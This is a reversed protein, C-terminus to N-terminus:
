IKLLDAALGSFIEAFRQRKKAVARTKRIKSVTRPATMEDIPRVDTIESEWETEDFDFGAASEATSETVYDRAEPEATCGDSREERSSEGPPRVADTDHVKDCVRGPPVYSYYGPGLDTKCEREGEDMDSGRHGPAEEVGTDDSKGNLVVSDSLRELVESVRKNAGALEDSAARLGEIRERDEETRTKGGLGSTWSDRRRPREGVPSVVEGSGSYREDHKGQPNSM